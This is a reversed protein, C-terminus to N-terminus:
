LSNGLLLNNIIRNHVWCIKPVQECNTSSKFRKQLKDNLINIEKIMNKVFVQGDKELIDLGMIECCENIGTLGITLYQKEINMYDLSYLPLNGNNIRNKLLHKKVFNIKQVYECHEKLLELFLDINKNAKIAMRPLNLTTIGLSGVKLSGAGFSNLYENTINSRLRCCGSITSTKGCYINIFGFEKNKKAILKLFERDLINNNEDVSFCASSIPFTVPTRKLEFNMIDLYMEQLKRITDKNPKNGDLDYYYECLEDLFYNDYISVNTFVSQNSRFPQNLTYILSQIEERVYKWISKEDKFINDEKFLKDVFFSM